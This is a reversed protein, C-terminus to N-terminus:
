SMFRQAWIFAEWIRIINSALFRIHHPFLFFFFLVITEMFTWVKASPSGPPDATFFHEMESRVRSRESCYICVFWCFVVNCSIWHWWMRRTRRWRRVLVKEQQWCPCWWRWTRSPPPFSPFLLDVFALFVVVDVPLWFLLLCQLLFWLPWLLVRDSKDCAQFPLECWLICTVLLASILGVCFMAMRQPNSILPM